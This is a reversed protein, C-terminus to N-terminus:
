QENLWKRARELLPRNTDDGVPLGVNVDVEVPAIGSIGFRSFLCSEIQRRRQEKLREPTFKHTLTGNVQLDRQALDHHPACLLVWNEPDDNNHNGDIHHNQTLPSGCLICQHCCLYELEGQSTWPATM